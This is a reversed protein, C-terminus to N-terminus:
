VERGQETPKSTRGTHDFRTLSCNRSAPRHHAVMLAPMQPEEMRMGVRYCTVRPQSVEFLATGVRYRDGICVEDDPLGDVSFNEGFQGYSLNTRGLVREWYRYSDMQYVLVARNVGGHGALDGQGDGDINLRRVMLRGQARNKWIGTHVTKGRWTIDLPLGINVSVLKASM